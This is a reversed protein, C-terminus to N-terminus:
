KKKSVTIHAEAGYHPLVMRDTEGAALRQIGTAIWDEGRAAVIPIDQGYAISNATTLGIRLGTFSGPGQYAVIGAIDDWDTNQKKLEDRIVGLLEKALNRDAHWTHYSRQTEGDYLGIEAEPNDTRLTLFM